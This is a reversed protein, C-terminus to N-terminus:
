PVTSPTDPRVPDAKLRRSLLDDEMLDKRLYLIRYTGLPKVGIGFAMWTQQVRKM